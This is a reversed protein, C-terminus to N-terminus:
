HGEERQNIWCSHSFRLWAQVGSRSERVGLLANGAQNVQYIRTKADFADAQVQPSVLWVKLWNGSSVENRVLWNRSRECSGCNFACAVRGVTSPNKQRLTSDTPLESEEHLRPTRSSVQGSPM